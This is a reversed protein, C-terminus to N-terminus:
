RVAIVQTVRALIDADDTSAYTRNVGNENHAIEGEVGRRDLMRAALECQTREHKSPLPYVEVDHSDVETFDVFPYIREKLRDKALALYATVTADSISNDNILVKVLAIKDSDTM